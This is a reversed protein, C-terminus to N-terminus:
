FSGTSPPVVAGFKLGMRAPAVTCLAWEGLPSNQVVVLWSFELPTHTGAEVGLYGAEATHVAFVSLAVLGGIVEATLTPGDVLM